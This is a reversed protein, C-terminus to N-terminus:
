EVAYAVYRKNNALHPCLCSYIYCGMILLSSVQAGLEGYFIILSLM